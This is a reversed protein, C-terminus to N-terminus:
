GGPGLRLLRKCNRMVDAAIRGRLTTKYWEEEKELYGAHVMRKLRRELMWEYRYRATLEQLTLGYTPSTNLEIMARVSVSSEAVYVFQAYVMFLFFYLAAGSLYTVVDSPASWAPPWLASDEPILGYFLGYLGLGTVWFVVLVLARRSIRGWYLVMGQVLLYVMFTLLGATLGRM